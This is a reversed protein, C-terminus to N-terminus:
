RRGPPRYIWQAHPNSASSFFSLPVNGGFGGGLRLANEQLRQRERQMHNSELRPSLPPRVLSQELLEPPPNFGSNQLVQGLPPVSRGRVSLPRGFNQERQAAGVKAGEETTRVGENILEPARGIPGSMEGFSLWLVPDAHRRKPVLPRLRHKEEMPSSMRDFAEDLTMVIEGLRDPPAGLRDDCASITVFCGVEPVVDVIIPQKWSPDATCNPLTETQGEAIVAGPDGGRPDDSNVIVNIYPNFNPADEVCALGTATRARLFLGNGQVVGFGLSLWGGGLTSNVPRLQRRRCVGGTAMERQPIPQILKAIPESASLRRVAYVTCVLFMAGEDNCEVVVENRWVPHPGTAQTSQGTFLVTNDKSMMVVEVVLNEGDPLGEGRYVFVPMRFRPRRGGFQVLMHADAEMRTQEVSEMKFGIVRPEEQLRIIEDVPFVADALPVSDKLILHLHLTTMSKFDLKASEKWILDNDTETPVVEVEVIAPGELAALLFDSGFNSAHSSGKRPNGRVIRALVSPRFFFASPDRLVGWVRMFHLIITLTEGLEAAKRTARAATAGVVTNKLDTAFGALGGQEQKPKDDRNATRHRMGARIRRRQLMKQIKFYSEGGLQRFEHWTWFGQGETDVMEFIVQVAGPDLPEPLQFRLRVDELLARVEILDLEGTGNTDHKKWFSRLEDLTLPKSGDAGM